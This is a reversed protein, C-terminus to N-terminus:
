YTVRPEVQEALTGVRACIGFHPAARPPALCVLLQNAGRKLSLTVKYQDPDVPVACAPDQLVRVGNLWIKFPANAGFILKTRLPESATLTTRLAFVGTATQEAPQPLVGLLNRPPAPRWGRAREAQAVTAQALSAVGRLRVTQWQNCDPVRNPDVPVPVAQMAPLSMGEGDTINCYPYRGHGYSVSLKELQRPIMHTHLLVRCGQITTKFIGQMNCGAADLLAFGTPRGDSILRDAVHRYTLQISHDTAGPNVHPTPVVEMRALAIGPKVGRVKHVLRDALRALRAGLVHQEHGGIHIGDDLELDIAPAVDLHRIREPLLRQQEQINNWDQDNGTAAHCGIQVVLWPLEPLRMDRRTAAVLAATKETYVPAATANTDSEGQYWLIGAIPQGLKEFRRLMAGYLSAGGRERLEPSWQDMSTGGHACAILGQPVRTRKRMELAFVLGPSVGKVMTARRQKLIARSPRGPGDGYSNHFRDVAEDLFHLPEEATGWEDRMYFARVCPHPKPAHVLNGVGQMNSQGALIWVDGVFIDDLAVTELIKHGHCIQLEVRYPGGSNLKALTASFAKAAAVGAQHWDQGPVVRGARLVRLEINGSGVCTGRVHAGGRNTADRQLVQGDMLGHLIKM